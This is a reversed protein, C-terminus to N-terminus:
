SEAEQGPRHRSLLDRIAEAGMGGTFYISYYRKMERFLPEDSILDREELKM